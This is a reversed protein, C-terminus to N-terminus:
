LEIIGYIRSPSTYVERGDSLTKWYTYTAVTATKYRVKEKRKETVVVENLQVKFSKKNVKIIEGFYKQETIIVGICTGHHGMVKMGVQAKM